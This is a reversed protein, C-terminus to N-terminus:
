RAGGKAAAALWRALRDELREPSVTMGVECNIKRKAGIRLDTLTAGLSLAGKTEVTVDHPETGVLGPEAAEAVALLEALRVGGEFRAALEGLLRRIAEAAPTGAETVANLAPKLGDASVFAQRSVDLGLMTIPIGSHFVRFAAEPDRRMNREAVPTVDGPAKLAGGLVVLRKVKGGLASDKVLALAINTLPGLAVLTLEGPLRNALDVILDAGSLTGLRRGSEPFAFDAADEEPDAPPRERFLPREAGAAVPAASGALGIIRLMREAAEAAGAQGFVTTVGALEALGSAAACLLALSKGTGTDTDVLLKPINDM